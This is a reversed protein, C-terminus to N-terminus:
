IGLKVIFPSLDDIYQEGTNLTGTEIRMKLSFRGAVILENEPDAALADGRALGASYARTWLTKGSSDMKLVLIWQYESPDLTETDISIANGITSVISVNNFTDTSISSSATNPGIEHPATFGRSWRHEGSTAFQVVFLPDRGAPLIRGPDFGFSSGEYSGTVSINGLTDVDVGSPHANEFGRSWVPNGDRDLKTLFMGSGEIPPQSGFAIEMSHGGALIVHDSRDVVADAPTDGGLGGFRRVWGGHTPRTDGTSGDLKAVYVDSTGAPAAPDTTLTVDDFRMNGTFSGSAIVDGHQTINLKPRTTDNNTPNGPFSRSWLHKGENDFKAVFLGPGADMGGFTITGDNVGAVIVNGSTDLTVSTAEQAAVDGFKHSWRHKGLKDFSVIFIDTEGAGMLPAAGSDDDFRVSEKFSGAAIINGTRDVAISHIRADKDFARAWLACDFGDCNEDEDSACSEQGPLM